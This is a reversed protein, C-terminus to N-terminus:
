KRGRKIKKVSNIVDLFDKDTLAYLSKLGARIIESKNMIKELSIAKNISLEILKYDDLPFSFIDKKVVDLQKPKEKNNKFERM